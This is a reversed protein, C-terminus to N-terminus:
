FFNMELMPPTLLGFEDYNINSTAMDYNTKKNEEDLWSFLEDIHGLEQKSSSFKNNFNMEYPVQVCQKYQNVHIFNEKEMYEYDIRQRKYKPANNISLYQNNSVMSVNTTTSNNLIMNSMFISEQQISAKQREINQKNAYILCEYRISPDILQAIFGLKMAKRRGAILIHTNCLFTLRDGNSTFLDLVNMSTCHEGSFCNQKAQELIDLCESPLIQRISHDILENPKYGLLLDTNSSIESINLQDTLVFRLTTASPVGNNNTPVYPVSSLIQECRAVFLPEKTENNDFSFFHGTLLMSKTEIQSRNPRKGRPLIWTCIASKEHVTPISLMRHIAEHDDKSICDYITTLQPYLSRVNKRLYQEVNDSILIIRGSTNLVIIFGTLDNEISSSQIDSALQVNENSPDSPWYKHRLLRSLTLSLIDNKNFRNGDSEDNAANKFLQGLAELAQGTQKRRKYPTSNSEKLSYVDSTSESSLSQSNHQYSM